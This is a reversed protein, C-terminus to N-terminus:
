FKSWFKEVLETRNAVGAKKFIHHTHTKVTGIAVQFHQAIRQNDMGEVMLVLVEEERSSLGYRQAFYPATEQIQRERVDTAAPANARKLELARVASRTAYSVVCLSLVMELVNRRYLFEAVFVNNISPESVFLMVIADELFVLLVLVMFAAVVPVKRRYRAKEVPSNAGLYKLWFFVSAGLWFFQRLSYLLWKRMANDIGPIFYFFLSVAVFGAIPGYVWRKRKENTYDLIVLWLPQCMAAGLVIHTFPDEMAGWEADFPLNQTLFENYLIWAQEIGYALAFFGLYLLSKKRSVAYAAFSIFSSAVCVAVLCIAILYTATALVVEM